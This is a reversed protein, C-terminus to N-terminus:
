SRYFEEWKCSPPSVTKGIDDDGFILSLSKNECHPFLPKDTFGALPSAMKNQLMFIPPSKSAPLLWAPQGTNWPSFHVAVFHNCTDGTDAGSACCDTNWSPLSTLQASQLSEFSAHRAQDCCFSHEFFGSKMSFSHGSEQLFHVPMHLSPCYVQCTRLGIRSVSIYSDRICM